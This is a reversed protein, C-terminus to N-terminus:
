NRGTSISTNISILDGGRLWKMEIINQGLVKYIVAARSVIPEYFYDMFGAIYGSIMNQVGEIQRRVGM